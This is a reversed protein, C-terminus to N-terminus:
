GLTLGATAVSAHAHLGILAQALPAVGAGLTFLALRAQRIVLLLVADQVVEDVHGGVQQVQGAVDYLPVPLPGAGRGVLLSLTCGGGGEMEM